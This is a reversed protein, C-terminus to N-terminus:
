VWEDCTQAWLSMGRCFLSNGKIDSCIYEESESRCPVSSTSVSSVHCCGSYYFPEEEITGNPCSAYGKISLYLIAIDHIFVPIKGSANIFCNTDSICVLNYDYSSADFSKDGCSCTYNRNAGVCVNGCWYRGGDDCFFEASILSINTWFFILYKTKWMTWLM